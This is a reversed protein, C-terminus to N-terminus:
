SQDTDVNENKFEVARYKKSESYNYWTLFLFVVGLILPLLHVWFRSPDLVISVFGFLFFFLGLFGVFMITRSFSTSTREAMIKSRELFRNLREVETVCNNISDKCAVGNQVEVLCDKCIAKHCNKCIAVAEIEPHYFCKM